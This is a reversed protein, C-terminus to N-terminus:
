PAASVPKADAATPATERMARAPLRRTFWLGAVLLILAAPLLWSIQGGIEADFLRGLGTAGWTGGPNAGGGVSGTEDGNLRGFGNYGLALELISNHQSGGIYPRDAAPTLMVIAMWWGASAAMAGGAALVNLVRRRVTTPAAVLYAVAFAPVVLLVQLMKTLFGFGMLAGVLLLWRAGAREVARMTAWAGLTMLLTLLADPNNFRFMLAAVPTLALIAGAILGAASGYLRRVTAHLVGVSAVGLLVQPLLISLSSLGFVRVSLAMIWLAAPTKDVTISNAADSSGFLLAKWSASGAQAAASYYANAWGNATLGYVYLAATTALLGLLLLQPRGFRPGGESTSPGQSLDPISPSAPATATDM